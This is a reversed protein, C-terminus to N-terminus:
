KKKAPPKGGGVEFEKIGASKDDIFLEVKYKGAPWGSAKAIHFETARPGLSAITEASETVLIGKPGFTWRTKLVVQPAVGESVVSLYIVDKPGFSTTPAAVKKDIGVSKGLDLTTVKFPPPPPPPPPAPQVVPPPPPPPPPEKKCGTVAAVVLICLALAGRLRSM